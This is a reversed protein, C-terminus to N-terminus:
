RDLGSGGGKETKDGGRTEEKPQCLLAASCGTYDTIVASSNTSFSLFCKLNFFIFSIRINYCRM